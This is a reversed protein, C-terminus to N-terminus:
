VCGTVRSLRLQNFRNETIVKMVRHSVLAEQYDSVSAEVYILM